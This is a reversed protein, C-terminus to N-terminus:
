LTISAATTTIDATGSRANHYKRRCKTASLEKQFHKTYLIIKMQSIELEEPTVHCQQVQNLAYLTNETGAGCDFHSVKLNKAVRDVDPVLTYRVESCFVFTQLYTKLMLKM